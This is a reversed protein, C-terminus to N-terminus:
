STLAAKLDFESELLSYVIPPLSLLDVHTALKVASTSPQTSFIGSLLMSAFYLAIPWFLPHWRLRAQRAILAAAWAAATLLFLLDTMTAKLGAITVTPKAFALSIILLLLCGLAM